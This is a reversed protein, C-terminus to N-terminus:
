ALGGCRRELVDPQSPHQYNLHGGGWVCVCLCLCGARKKLEYGDKMSHPHQRATRINSTRSINGECQSTTHHSINHRSTVVHHPTTHRSTICRSAVHHLIGTSSFSPMGSRAFDAFEAKKM